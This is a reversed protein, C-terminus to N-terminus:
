GPPAAATPVATSNAAAAPDAQPILSAIRAVLDARGIANPIAEDKLDEVHEVIVIESKAIKAAVVEPQDMFEAWHIFTIDSFYQALPEMSLDMFSDHFVVTKALILPKNTSANAFFLSDRRSDPTLKGVRRVPAPNLGRDVRFGKIYQAVDLGMFRMPLESATRTAPREVVKGTEWLGPQIADVISQAFVVGAMETSHRGLKPFLMEDSDAEFTDVAAWLDIFRLGPGDKLRQRWEIRRADPCKALKALVGSMKEPYVYSKNPAFTVYVRRGTKEIGAAFRRVDQALKEVPINRACPNTFEVDLFLEGNQGEYV